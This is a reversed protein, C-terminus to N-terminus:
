TMLMGYEYPTWSIYFNSSDFSPISPVNTASGSSPDPMSGKMNNQVNGALNIAPMQFPLINTKKVPKKFTEAPIQKSKATVFKNVTQDVNVFSQEQSQWPITPITFPLQPKVPELPTQDTQQPTPQFVTPIRPTPKTSPEQSVPPQGSEGTPKTPPQTTTPSPTTTPLPTTTPTPTPPISQQQEPPTTKGYGGSKAFEGPPGFLSSTNKLEKLKEKQILANLEKNFSDLLRSFRESTSLQNFNNKEQIDIASQFSQWMRGANDNIDKLLPRFLNAASARIVEEGPALMAPVSDVNGSGPGGVTGGQSKGLIQPLGAAGRRSFAKTLSDVTVGLLDALEELNNAKIEIGREKKYIDIIRKVLQSETEKGLMRSMAERSLTTGGRPATKPINRAAGSFLARLGLGGAATGGVATSTGGGIGLAPAALIGAPIALSAAAGYATYNAWDPLGLPNPLTIPGLPTGRPPSVPQPPTIPRTPGPQFIPAVPIPPRVPTGTPPNVPASIPQFYPTFLKVYQGIGGAICAYVGKCFDPTGPGPPSGGGKPGPGGGKPSPGAGRGYPPKPILDILKKIGKVIRHIKYLFGLLKGLVLVRVIWRWHEAIFSFFKGVKERNAPDQLWKWATNVLIGTLLISFFQLIKDFISKAPATVKSFAKGIVQNIKNPEEIGKEKAGIRRKQVSARSAALAQKKEASRAAFDISLQKQIEILIRNTEVLTSNIIQDNKSTQDVKTQLLETQAALNQQKPQLFRFPSIKFKQEVQESVNSFVSSSVTKKGMKPVSPARFFPQKGIAM